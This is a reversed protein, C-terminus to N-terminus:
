DSPLAEIVGIGLTGGLYLATSERYAGGPLEVDGRHYSGHACLFVISVPNICAQTELQDIPTGPGTQRAFIRTAAGHLRFGDFHVTAFGGVAPETDIRREAHDGTYYRGGLVLSATGAVEVVIGNGAYQYGVHAEPLEFSSRYIKNNGLLQLGLGIRAFPGHTDGFYGRVGGTSSWDLEGELGDTGGGIAGYLQFRGTAHNSTVIVDPDVAFLFGVTTADADSGRIRYSGVRLSLLDYFVSGETGAREDEADGDSSAAPASAVDQPTTGGATASAPAPQGADSRWQGRATASACLVILSVAIPSTRM